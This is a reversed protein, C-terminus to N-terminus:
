RGIITTDKGYRSRLGNDVPSYGQQLAHRRELPMKRWVWPAIPSLYSWLGKKATKAKKQLSLWDSCFSEYCYTGTVWAHGGKVLLENVNNKGAVVVALCRRNKRDTDYVQLQISKRKLLKKIFKVSQVGHPQTREPSDIGYLSVTFPRDNWLVHITDGDEIELMTAPQFEKQEPLTYVIKNTTNGYDYGYRSTGANSSGQTRSSKKMSKNSLASSAHNRSASYNKLSKRLAKKSKPNVSLACAHQVSFIWLFMCLFM